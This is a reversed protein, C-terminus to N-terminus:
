ILSKGRNTPKKIIHESHPIHSTEKGKEILKECVWDYVNQCGVYESNGLRPDPDFSTEIIPYGYVSLRENAAKRLSKLESPKPADIKNLCILAPKNFSKVKEIIKQETASVGRSIDVVILFVDTHHLYDEVHENVDKSVDNFGPYNVLQVAGSDGADYAQVKKTSGAVASINGTDFGFVAKFLSDKGASGDGVAGIMVRNLLMQRLMAIHIVAPVTKRYAPGALDIALWAGTVFWGIPGLAAGVVRVLGANAAFALGKGLIARSVMNAVIVSTKYVAFGGYQKLLLQIVMAGAAGFPIEGEKFGMGSFLLRKEADTMKDLADQFVKYLVLSELDEIPMEKKLEKVGMRKAVDFVVESYDVGAGGRFLTAIDNSGMKCLHNAVEEASERTSKLTTDLRLYKILPAVDDLSVVSSRHIIDVLTLQTHNTM